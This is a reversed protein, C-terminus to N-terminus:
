VQSGGAPRLVLNTINSVTDKYAADKSLKQWEPDARFADWGKKMAAEDDFGLMYTLNPLKSGVIAEGFFVPNMGCRKFIAIEGGENFMHIKKKAREQNPSEYIRLQLLRGAAKSPVEVRPFQDFALMLTSEYRTFAPDGKAANLVAQGAKQFAEDESLRSELLVSEPSKHPLLLYLDTGDAEMKLTPNDKALLKFAGVPEVGARNCAPVAAEALFAEYAQQKQPSALHYTRLEILQKGSTDGAAGLHKSASLGLAAAASAALFERRRM